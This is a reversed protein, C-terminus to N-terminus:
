FKMLLELLIITRFIFIHFEKYVFIKNFKSMDKIIYQIYNNNFIIQEKLKDRQQVQKLNHKEKLKIYHWAGNYCIAFKYNTIVIDADWYNNNKDKFICANSKTNEVGFFKCCLNYFLMEAKSRKSSLQTSILGGIRGNQKLINNLCEKSCTKLKNYVKDKNCYLCNKYKFKYDVCNNCIIKNSCKTSFLINCKNCNKNYDKNKLINSIRQKYEKTIIRNKNNYEASCKNTCYHNLYKKIDSKLKKFIINCNICNVDSYISWNIKIQSQFLADTYNLFNYYLENKTFNEFIIKQTPKKKNDNYYKKIFNIINTKTNKNSM